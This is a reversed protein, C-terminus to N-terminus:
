YFIQFGITALMAARDVASLYKQIRREFFTTASVAVGVQLKSLHIVVCKRWPSLLVM